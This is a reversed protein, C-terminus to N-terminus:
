SWVEGRKQRSRVKCWTLCILTIQTEVGFLLFKKLMATEPLIQNLYGSCRLWLIWMELFFKWPQCPTPGVIISKSTKCLASFTEAFVWCFEGRGRWHGHTLIGACDSLDSVLGRVFRADKGRCAQAHANTPRCMSTFILWKEHLLWTAAHLRDCVTSDLTCEKRTYIGGGGKGSPGSIVCLKYM